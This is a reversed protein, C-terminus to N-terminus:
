IFIVTQPVSIFPLYRDKYISTVTLSATAGTYTPKVSIILTQNDAIQYNKGQSTGITGLSKISNTENSEIHM